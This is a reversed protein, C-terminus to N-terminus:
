SKILWILREASWLYNFFLAVSFFIALFLNGMNIMLIIVLLFLLAELAFRSRGPIAVLSKRIRIPDNPVGFM